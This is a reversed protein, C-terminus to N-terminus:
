LVLGSTLAFKAETLTFKNLQREFLIYSGKYSFVEKKFHRTM